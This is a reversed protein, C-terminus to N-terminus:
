PHIFLKGHCSQNKHPLREFCVKNAELSLQTGLLSLIAKSIKKKM